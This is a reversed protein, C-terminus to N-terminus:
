FFAHYKKRKLNLDMLEMRGFFSDFRCEKLSLPHIITIM